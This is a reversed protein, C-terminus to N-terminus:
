AWKRYVTVSQCTPNQPSETGLVWNLTQYLYGFRTTCIFWHQQSDIPLALTNDQNWNTRLENEATFYVLAADKDGPYFLPMVVNSANNNDFRLSSPVNLDVAPLIWTLLGSTPSEESSSTNYFFHAYTYNTTIPGSLCLSEIAAGEHCPTLYMGDLSANSSKLTLYFPPSQIDYYPAAPEEQAAVQSAAFALLGAFISKLM